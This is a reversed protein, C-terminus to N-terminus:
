FPIDYADEWHECSYVIIEPPPTAQFKNCGNMDFNWLNCNLCNRYPFNEGAHKIHSEVVQVIKGLYNDRAIPKPKKYAM